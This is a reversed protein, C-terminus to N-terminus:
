RLFFCTRKIIIGALIAGVFGIILNRQKRLVGMLSLTVFETVSESKWWDEKKMKLLVAFGAATMLVSISFMILNTPNSNGTQPLTEDEQPITTTTTETESTTFTEDPQNTSSTVTTTFKDYSTTHIETSTTFTITTSMPETTTEASVDYVTGKMELQYNPPLM